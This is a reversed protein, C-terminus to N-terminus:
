VATPIKSRDMTRIPINSYIIITYLTLIIIVEYNIRSINENLYFGSSQTNNM